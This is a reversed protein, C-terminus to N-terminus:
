FYGDQKCICFFPVDFRKSVLVFGITTNIILTNITTSNRPDGFIIKKTLNSDIQNLGKICLTGFHDTMSECFSDCFTNLADHLSQKFGKSLLTM